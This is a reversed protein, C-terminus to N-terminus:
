HLKWILLTLLFFFIYLLYRQTHGSQIWNLKRSLKKILYLIPRFFLYESADLVSSSLSTEAPFHKKPKPTKIQFVLLTRFIRLVPAAFSSATYQMRSSPMAYGCSWTETERVPRTKLLSKKLIFLIAFIFVAIWLVSTVKLLPDLITEEMGLPVTIGMIAQAAQLSFSVMMSPFLGIWACIVALGVMPGCLVFSSEKYHCDEKSRNKGLFIAGFAKAFCYAALGGILALSAVGLCSFIIGHIDFHFVGGLLAQYVLWESIFGNFFPLGCISLSGVLFLYGTWPLMKLLGGMHDIEGTHTTRIVSGASLFLLGKFVAHNFVHLLAGAYGIFAVTDQNFAQGMMGMGLGLTIIGINEISHYALLKKIEHQGLAYLVGGVGSVAGIVLLLIGCGLPFHKVILIFRILGYIGIKIVAGSLLASIHSPAAPHAHPLWIHLPIFGAKVGFGILALIFLVVVLSPSFPVAMMQDFNMSGARSGMLLFMALLCFTGTHTAILYIYGAKRVSEKEDYFTILFYASVTMLEWGILFLVANKAVLTLMISASLWHYLCYHAGLSRKGAYDRLYGYGYIGAALMLVFFLLLFFASLADIGIYFEGFPFQWHPRFVEPTNFCLVHIASVLGTLCSFILSSLFLYGCIKKVRASLLMLFSAAM